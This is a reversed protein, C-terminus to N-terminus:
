IANLLLELRQSDKLKNFIWFLFGLSPIAVLLGILFIILGFTSNVVSEILASGIFAFGIVGFIILIILVFFRKLPELIDNALSYRM